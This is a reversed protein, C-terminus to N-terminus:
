REPANERVFEITEKMPTGPGFIADVGAEQLPEKDKEPMVGGGIILTDERAGYG